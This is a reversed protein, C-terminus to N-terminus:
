RTTSLAENEERLKKLGERQEQKLQEITTDAEAQLEQKSEESMDMM